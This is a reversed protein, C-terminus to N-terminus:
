RNFVDKGLDVVINSLSNQKDHKQYLGYLKKLLFDLEFDAMHSINSPRRFISPSNTLGSWPITAM